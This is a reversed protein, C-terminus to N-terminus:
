RLMSIGYLIVLHLPYFIYFFYKMRVRGPKGNYLVLLPVALLSWYQIPWGVEAIALSLLCASFMVLRQPREEFLSCCVPLMVGFFGYDVKVVTTLWFVGFCGALFVATTVARDAAEGIEGGLLKGLGKALASKEGRLATKVCDLAAMLAISLSFTILIGLYFDREAITYVVQCLFGLVFIRLFYKWRSRTYRFGEAICFAFLPFALRGLIRFIDRGPFFLIGMHDLLMSAAAILKLIFSSM